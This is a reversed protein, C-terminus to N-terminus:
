QVSKNRFELEKVTREVIQEIQYTAVGLPRDLGRFAWEVTTKDAERCILLGITPKDDEAKLLEDAASVYFNLKGVFEPIFKVAKLEILVYSKLRTHYFVLDPFYSQGDPMRLEMQRGVFAFGQGLELLFRTINKVLAEELELEDHNENLKLFGFQYPSKILEQALKQQPLALTDSFNTMAVGQRVYLSSKIEGELEDRSWNNAITQNIYFLAEDLSSCKSVIQVHHKWPVFAFNAPMELEAGLQHTISKPIEAGLQHLKIIQENYFSYWQKMYLINRYSFGTEDPFLKKLDLSLQQLVGSGWNSEAKLTVIDCGLSWYFELMTHNVRVAAKIQSKQYRQKIEGLWKVYNDDAIISDRKVFEPENMIIIKIDRNLQQVYKQYLKQKDVIQEEIKGSCLYLKKQM